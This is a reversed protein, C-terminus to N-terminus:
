KKGCAKHRLQDLPSACRLTFTSPGGPAERTDPGMAFGTGVPHSLGYYPPQAFPTSAPGPWPNSPIDSFGGRVWYGYQVDYGGGTLTGTNPSVSWPYGLPMGSYREYMQHPPVLGPPQAFASNATFPVTLGVVLALRVTRM